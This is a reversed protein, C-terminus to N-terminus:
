STVLSPPRQHVRSSPRQPERNNDAFGMLPVVVRQVVLDNTSGM